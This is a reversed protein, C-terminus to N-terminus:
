KPARSVGVIARNHLVTAEVIPQEGLPTNWHLPAVASMAERIATERQAAEEDYMPGLAAARNRKIADSRKQEAERKPAEILWADMADACALAEKVKNLDRHLDGIQKSGELLTDIRSYAWTRVLKAAKPDRALLVFMPEDADAKDYCDFNGPNNKTGM